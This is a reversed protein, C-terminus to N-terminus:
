LKNFTPFVEGGGPTLDLRMEPPYEDFNLSSAHTKM